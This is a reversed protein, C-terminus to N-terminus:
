QWHVCAYTGAAGHEDLRSLLHTGIVLSKAVALTDFVAPSGRLAAIARDVSFHPKL